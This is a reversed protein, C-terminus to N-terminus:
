PAFCLQLSGRGELEQPNANGGSDPSATVSWGDDRAEKAGTGAFYIILGVTSM